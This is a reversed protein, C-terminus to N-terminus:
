MRTCPTTPSCTSGGPTATSCWVATLYLAGHRQTAVSLMQSQRRNTLHFNKIGIAGTNAHLNAIRVADAYTEIHEEPQNDHVGFSTYFYRPGVWRGAMTLDAYRPDVTPVGYPNVATTVGYALLLASHPHHRSALEPTWGTQHNHNHVDILGPMIFKGTSDVIRDVHALDCQFVCRIRGNEIVITGVRASEGNAMSLLTGGVLAIAGKARARPVKLVIPEDHQARDKLSYFYHHTGNLYEVVAASQWRPFWGGEDSLRQINQTANPAYFDIL